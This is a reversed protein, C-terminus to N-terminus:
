SFHFPCLLEEGNESGECNPPLPAVKITPRLIGLGIYSSSDAFSFPIQLSLSPYGSTGLFSFHPIHTLLSHHTTLPSHHITFEHRRRVDGPQDGVDQLGRM